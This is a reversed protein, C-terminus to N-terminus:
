EWVPEHTGFPSAPHAWRAPTESMQVAPALHRVTGLPGKTEIMLQQFDKDTMAPVSAEDLPEPLRGLGHNWQATQVLSLRVLYSGGQQARRALATM